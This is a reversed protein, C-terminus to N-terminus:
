RLSYQADPQSVSASTKEDLHRGKTRTRSHLRSENEVRKKTKEKNNWDDLLEHHLSSIERILVARSSLADVPVLELIFVEVILHPAAVYPQSLSASNINHM